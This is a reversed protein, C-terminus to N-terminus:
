SQGRDSDTEGAMGDPTVAAMQGHVVPAAELAAAATSFRTM